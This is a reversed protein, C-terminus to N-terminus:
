GCSSATDVKRGVRREEWTSTLSRAPRRSCRESSSWRQNIAAPWCGSFSRVDCINGPENFGVVADAGAPAAVAVVTPVAAVTLGALMLAVSPRAWKRTRDRSPLPTPDTTWM